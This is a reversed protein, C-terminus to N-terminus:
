SSICCNVRANFLNPNYLEPIMWAPDTGCHPLELHSPSMQTSGEYKKKLIPSILSIGSRSLPTAHGLQLPRFQHFSFFPAGRFILWPFRSPNADTSFPQQASFIKRWLVAYVIKFEVLALFIDAM